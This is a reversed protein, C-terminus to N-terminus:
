PTGFKGDAVRDSLTAVTAFRGSVIRAVLIQVDANLDVLIM